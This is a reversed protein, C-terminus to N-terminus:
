IELRGPYYIVLEQNRGNMVSLLVKRMRKEDDEISAIIRPTWRGASFAFETIVPRQIDQTAQYAPANLPGALLILVSAGAAKGVFGEPLPESGSSDQVEFSVMPYLGESAKEYAALLEDVSGRHLVIAPKAQDLAMNGAIRGVDILMPTRSMAVGTVNEPSEMLPMGGAIIVHSGSLIPRAAEDANWPSLIVIEPIYALEAIMDSLTHDERLTDHIVQVGLLRSRFGFLWNHLGWNGVTDVYPDSVILATQRSCSLTFGIILLFIVLLRLHDKRM